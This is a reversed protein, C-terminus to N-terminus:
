FMAYSFTLKYNLYSDHANGIDSNFIKSINYNYYVSGELRLRESIYYYGTTGTINEIGISRHTYM